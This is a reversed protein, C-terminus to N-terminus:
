TLEKVGVDSWNPFVELYMSLRTKEGDRSSGRLDMIGVQRAQLGVRHGRGGKECEGGGWEKKKRGRGALVGRAEAGPRGEIGANGEM